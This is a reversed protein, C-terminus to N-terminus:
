NSILQSANNIVIVKGEFENLLFETSLRSEKPFYNKIALRDLEIPINYNILGLDFLIKAYIKAISTKGTGSTGIFLGHLNRPLVNLGREKRIAAVKESNIIRMITQKVETLGALMDLENLHKRISSTYDGSSSAEKSKELKITDTIDEENITRNLEDNIKDRPIDAIRLLHKRQVIDFINKLLLTNPPYKEKNRYVYFFFKRLLEASNKSLYIKKDKFVSFFIELLKDPTYDDFNFTHTFRSKLGPNSEIFENMLSPYGAAIIIFKGKYDEMRKLLIDIAEEGFDSSTHAKKLSYAEDIFLIGGLAESIIQNTKIATEGTYQGVLGARDVEIVLGNELVGMAKLIKGFLRAVSTKGTGPNGLFLCHLELKEDTKIGKKKRESIFNLYTLFDVM